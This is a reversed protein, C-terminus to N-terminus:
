EFVNFDHGFRIPPNIKIEALMPLARGEGAGVVRRSKQFSIPRQTILRRQLDFDACRSSKAAAHIGGSDGEVATEGEGFVPRDCLLGVPINEFGEADFM